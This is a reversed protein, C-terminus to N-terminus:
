FSLNTTSEENSSHCDLQKFQGKLWNFFDFYKLLASILVFDPANTFQKVGAFGATKYAHNQFVGRIVQTGM